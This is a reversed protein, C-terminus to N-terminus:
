HEIMTYIKNGNRDYGEINFSGAGTEKLWIRAEKTDIIEAYGYDMKNHIVKISTIDPNFIYGFLIIKTSAGGSTFLVDYSVTDRNITRISPGVKSWGSSHKYFLCQGFGENGTGLKGKFFIIVDGDIVKVAQIDDTNINSKGFVYDFSGLYWRACVMVFFCLLLVVALAIIQKIEKM